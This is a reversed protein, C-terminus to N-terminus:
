RKKTMTLINRDGERAYSVHDMIRKVLYIGLGGIPRESVELKLDPDSTSTPDFPVGNDSVKFELRDELILADVEVQGSEGAPYGYLMVNSVAEELALNLSMALPHGLRAEMSIGQIFEHLRPIEDIDNRLQLHRLASASPDPNTFRISLMTLDDSAERGHTHSEVAAVLTKVQVDAKEGGLTRAIELLREEGFLEYGVNEAETLGDTYLFLGEGTFLNTEQEQYVMDSMVGLPLNPVVDLFSAAGPKLRVPANHGANCYRLHGTGLDLVGLFCTVFMDNENLESMSRNMEAIIRYPSKEHSSATRFLGRAASMVLAAPVGKGSVDGILFYLKGDRHFFDYLDGGVEKAPVVIGSIDVDKQQPDTLNSTPIMSMQIDRAVQLESDIRRKKESVDQYRLQSRVARFLIYSMVLLGIVQLLIVLLGVRRVEGYIENRPIVIAMSWDARDIPAFFVYEKEGKYLVERRGREGALMSLYIDRVSTSDDLSAAVEQVTKKMIFAPAPCVMLKGTRSVLVSFADPYGEISGTVDTLWDLSLDATLVVATDGKMDTVPMSFTTMLMEGGGADYYPESWYGEGTELPKLFWEKEPYGYSEKGLQITDIVDHNRFAYPAFLRGRDPFYNEMFAFATGSVSPNSDVIRCALSWLSDPINITKRVPWVNNRVAAEVEVLVDTIKLNTAELLDEARRNAEEYITKRSYFYQVLSTAELTALAVIVTALAQFAYGLKNGSSKAM